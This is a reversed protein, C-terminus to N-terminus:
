PFCIKRNPLVPMIGIRYAVTDISRSCLARCGLQLAKARPFDMEAEVSPDGTLCTTVRELLPCGLQQFVYQHQNKTKSNHTVFHRDIMNLSYGFSFLHM